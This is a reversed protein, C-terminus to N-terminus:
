GAPIDRLKLENAHFSAISFTPAMSVLSLPAPDSYPDVGLIFRYSSFSFDALVFLFDGHQNCHPRQPAFLRCLHFYCLYPSWWSSSWSEPHLVDSPRQLAPWLFSAQSSTSTDLLLFASEPFLSASCAPPRSSSCLLDSDLYHSLLPLGSTHSLLHQMQLLSAFSSFSYFFLLLLLVFLFLLHLLLPPPSSSLSSSFSSSSSSLVINM